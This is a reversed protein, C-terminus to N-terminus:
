SVRVEYVTTTGSVENSVVLLPRFTPSQWSPIFTLGEPGLDGAAPNPAGAISVPQNFDRPNVYTEFAPEDPDTVDYAVVGSLRELGIFAYNRGLLEGVM